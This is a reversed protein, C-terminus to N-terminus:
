PPDPGGLAVASTQIWNGQDLKGSDKADAVNWASSQVMQTPQCPPVGHARQVGALENGGKHLMQVVKVENEVEDVKWRQGPTRAAGAGAPAAEADGPGM